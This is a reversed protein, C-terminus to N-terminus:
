SFRRYSGNELFHKGVAQRGSPQRLYGRGSSGAPYREINDVEGGRLKGGAREQQRSM